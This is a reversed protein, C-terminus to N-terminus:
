IEEGNLYRVMERLDGRCHKRANLFDTRYEAVSLDDDDLYNWFDICSLDESDFSEEIFRLKSMTYTFKCEPYKDTLFM